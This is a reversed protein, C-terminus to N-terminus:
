RRNFEGSRLAAELRAWDAPGHPIGFRLWDPRALFPRTLIGAQGL